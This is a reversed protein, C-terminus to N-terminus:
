ISFGVKKLRQIIDQYDKENIIPEEDIIIERM